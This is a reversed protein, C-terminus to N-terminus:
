SGDRIAWHKELVFGLSSKSSVREYYFLYKKLAERAKVGSNENALQGSEKYISCEYYERNHESWNRLCMWCFEVPLSVNNDYFNFFLCTLEEFHAFEKYTVSPELKGLFVFDTAM